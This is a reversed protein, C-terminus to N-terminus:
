IKINKFIPKQDETLNKSGKFMDTNNTVNDVNWNKFTFGDPFTANEFMNSMNTVNDVNWNAIGSRVKKNKFLGSMDTVETTNWFGIRGGSNDYVYDRYHPIISGNDLYNYNDKIAKKINNDTLKKNSFWFDYAERELQSLKYYKELKKTIIDVFEKWFETQEISLLEKLYPIPIPVQVTSTSKYYDDNIKMLKSYNKMLEKLNNLNNLNNQITEREREPNIIKM